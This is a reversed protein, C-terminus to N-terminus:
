VIVFVCWFTHEALCIHVDGLKIAIVTDSFDWFFKVQVKIPIFLTSESESESEYVSIQANQKHTFPSLVPQQEWLQFSIQSIKHFKVCMYKLDKM